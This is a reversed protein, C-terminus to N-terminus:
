QAVPGMVDYFGTSTKLQVRSVPEKQGAFNKGFANYLDTAKIIVSGNAPLGRIHQLWSGNVWVDVESFPHNSFNYLKIQNRDPSAIAAVKIEQSPQTTPYPHSASYAALETDTPAEATLRTSGDGNGGNGANCGALAAGCLLVIAVRANRFIM